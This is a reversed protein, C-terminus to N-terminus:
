RRPRIIDFLVIFFTTVATSLLVRLVTHFFNSFSFVEVFFLSLHHIFVVTVTYIFFWRLGSAHSSPSMEPESIESTVNLSIVWPRAFGAMVTAFTHVGMTGSFVDIVFGTMFSLLLLIWTPIAMPLILIFMVYVYPNVYGSFQINNFILLQLIILAAFTIIYYLTRSM